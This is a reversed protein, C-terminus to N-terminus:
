FKLLVQMPSLSLYIQLNIFIYFQFSKIHYHQLQVNM